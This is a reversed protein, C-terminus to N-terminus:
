AGGDSPRRLSLKFLGAFAATIVLGGAIPFRSKVDPAVLLWKEFWMGILIVPAVIKIPTIQKGWRPVLVIAPIACCMVLVAWATVRRPDLRAMVYGVESTLNGYWIVLFQSWFLYIWFLAMGVLLNAM